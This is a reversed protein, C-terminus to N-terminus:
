DRRIVSRKAAMEGRGELSEASAKLGAAGHASKFARSLWLHDDGVGQPGM